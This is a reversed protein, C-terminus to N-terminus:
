PEKQFRTNVIHPMVNTGILVQKFYKEDFFFVVFAHGSVLYFVSRQGTKLNLTNRYLKESVM